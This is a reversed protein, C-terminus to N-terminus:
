GDVCMWLVSSNIKSLTPSFSFIGLFGYANHMTCQLMTCVDRVQTRKEPKQQNLIFTVDTWVLISPLNCRIFFFFYMQFSENTQEFLLFWLQCNHPYQFTEKSVNQSVLKLDNECVIANFISLYFLALACCTWWESM